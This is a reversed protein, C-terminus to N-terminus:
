KSSLITKLIAANAAVEKMSDIAGQMSDIREGYANYIRYFEGTKDNFYISFELDHDETTLNVKFPDNTYTVSTDGIFSAFYKFNYVHRALTELTDLPISPPTGTASKYHPQLTKNDILKAITNESPSDNSGIVDPKNDSLSLITNVKRGGIELEGISTSGYLPPPLNSVFVFRKTFSRLANTNTGFRKKIAEETM